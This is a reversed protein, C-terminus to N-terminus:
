APVMLPMAAAEKRERPETSQPVWGCCQSSLETGHPGGLWFGLAGVSLQCWTAQLTLLRM